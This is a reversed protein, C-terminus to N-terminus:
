RDRGQSRNRDHSDRSESDRSHDTASRMSRSLSNQKFKAEQEFKKLLAETRDSLPGASRMAAAFAQADRAPVAAVVSGGEGRGAVVYPANQSAPSNQFAEFEAQPIEVKACPAAFDRGRAMERDTEESLKECRRAFAPDHDEECLVAKALAMKFSEGDAERVKVTVMGDRDQVASGFRDTGDVAIAVGMSDAYLKIRGLDDKTMELQVVGSLEVGMLSAAKAVTEALNAGPAASARMTVFGRDDVSHEFEGGADRVADAVRAIAAEPDGGPGQPENAPEARNAVLQEAIANEWFERFRDIQSVPISAIMPADLGAEPDWQEARLDIGAELAAKAAAEFDGRTMQVDVRPEIEAPRDLFGQAADYLAQLLAAAGKLGARGIERLISKLVMESIEEDVDAM